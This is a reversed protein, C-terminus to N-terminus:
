NSNNRLKWIVMPHGSLDTNILNAFLLKQDYVGMNIKKIFEKEDDDLYFMEKIKNSVFEKLEEVDLKETKNLVPILTERLKNYNVSEISTLCENVIEDFNIPIDSALVIYFIAIKKVLQTEFGSKLLNYTDYIDRPTTRVILANIKSGILEFDSLRNVRVKEGLKILNSDSIIPLIHIRNSYNIEIKLIDKSGSVTNYSFLFSDLSHAFKSKDSLYYGEDHMYTSIDKRINERMSMM